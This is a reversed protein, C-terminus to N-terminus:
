TRMTVWKPPPYKARPSKLLKPLRGADAVRLRWSHTDAAGKRRGIWAVGPMIMPLNAVGRDTGHRHEGGIMRCRDRGCVRHQATGITPCRISVGAAGVGRPGPCSANPVIRRHSDVGPCRTEIRINKAHSSAHAASPIRTHGCPTVARSPIKRPTRKASTAFRRKM